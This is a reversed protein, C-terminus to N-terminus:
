IYPYRIVVIGSGGAGGIGGQFIDAAGSGGGGGGTNVNGAFGAGNAPAPAPARGGGGLGATGYFGAGGGAFYRGPGPGPDGFYTPTDFNRGAGAAKLIGAAGAGGGAGDGPGSGGPFGQGPIGTSNGGGSGGPANFTGGGSVTVNANASANALMSATGPTGPYGNYFPPAAPGGGSGGAGIVVTYVNASTITINGRAFGGAGGGGGSWYGGMSGAAGGGGAVVMYELTNKAPSPSLADVRFTDSATFVHTKYGNLLSVNGGSAEINVNNFPYRIIVIGSGGITGTTSAAIQPASGGGGGGTNVNGNIAVTGGGGVGAIGATSYSVGAGGGAFYRSTPSPGPRGYSSPVWPIAIGAGGTGANASPAPGSTGAATAGGGGGSGGGYVAAGGPNGYGILGNSPSVSGAGGPGPVLSGAGGGGSGGSGGAGGNGPDGYANGGGGGIVTIAGFSTTQSVNSNPLVASPTSQPKGLGGAGVVVTYTNAALSVAGTLVGGAGGGGGHSGGPGLAPNSGGGGGGGGVILINATNNLSSVSGSELTFIGSTTFIHTKYGNEYSELGGSARIYALSTDGIIINSSTAKLTGTLSDERIQLAFYRTENLPISTNSQLTLVAGTANATFSGTNGGVFDSATVNGVTVYYYTYANANTANITFIINSGEIFGSSTTTVNGFSPPPVYPYRIIVVGSGGSPSAGPSASTAGGGGGGSNVIGASGGDGGGGLGGIGRNPYYGGFSPSYGGGGGGAYYVNSGSINTQKGIGGNGSNGGLDSTGSQGAAGAGGGGTRTTYTFPSPNIVSSGGPFGQQTPSPFGYGSGASRNYNGAGGGSGGNGAAGAAGTTAAGGGGGGVSLINAFNAGTVSTNSGDQGRQGFAGPNTGGAGITVTINGLIASVFPMYVYGGAGGGSGGAGSGDEGGGSGGGAISLVDISGFAGLSTVNLVSSTNFTHIRYGGTTIVNGGTATIYAISSDIAIINNSTAVVAGTPSGERIKVNFNQTIGYPVSATVLSITNSQGNMVFSGTNASAFTSTTTNGETSYYFLTGTPVNHATFTLTITGGEAVSSSSETFGLINYSKYFDTIVVNSTSAYVVNGTISDTRLQVRFTEGTEDVYGSDTNAYLAFVAQNNNLTLYGTNSGNYFDSITLNATVPNVSYFLTSGNVANATVLTFQVLNGENVSSTNATLSVFSSNDQVTIPPSTAVVDGQISGRRLKIVFSKDGELAFPTTSLVLNAFGNSISVVGSLSNSQFNRAQIAAM